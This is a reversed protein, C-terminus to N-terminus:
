AVDKESAGLAAPITVGEVLVVVGARRPEIHGHQDSALDALTGAALSAGRPDPHIGAPAYATAAGQPYLLGVLPSADVPQLLGVSAAEAYFGAIPLHVLSQG